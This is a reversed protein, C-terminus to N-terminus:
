REPSSQWRVDCWLKTTQVWKCICHHFLTLVLILCNSAVLWGGVLWWCWGTSTHRWCNPGWVQVLVPPDEGLDNWTVVQALRNSDLFKWIKRQRQSIEWLGSKKICSREKKKVTCPPTRRGWFILFCNLLMDVERWPWWSVACPLCAWWPQPSSVRFGSQCQPFDLWGIRQRGACLAANMRELLLEKIFNNDEEHLRMGNVHSLSVDVLVGSARIVCGFINWHSLTHWGCAKIPPSPWFDIDWFVCGIRGKREDMTINKETRPKIQISVRLLEMSRWSWKRFFAM